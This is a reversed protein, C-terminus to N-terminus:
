GLKGWAFVFTAVLIKLFVNILNTVKQLSLTKRM